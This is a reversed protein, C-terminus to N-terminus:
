SCLLSLFPPSISPYYSHSIHHVYDVYIKFVYYDHHTGAGNPGLLGFCEGQVVHFNSDRVAVTVGSKVGPNPYVKRLRHYEIAHVEEEDGVVGTELSRVQESDDEAEDSNDIATGENEFDTLLSRHQNVLRYEDAVDSDLSDLEEETPDKFPDPPPPLPMLHKFDLYYATYSYGCTKIISMLCMAWLPTFDESFLGLYQDTHDHAWKHPFTLLISSALFFGHPGLLAWFGMLIALLERIGLSEEDDDNLMSDFQATFLMILIPLVLLALSIAPLLAMAFATSSFAHSMCYTFALLECMFLIHLLFFLGNGSDAFVHLGFIPICIWTGLMPIALLAMDGLAHGVWYAAPDVGMIALLNRVKAEREAVLLEALLGPVFIYGGTIMVCVLINPLMAELENPSDGTRSFLFYLTKTEMRLYMASIAAGLPILVLLWTQVGRLLQPLKMVDSWTPYKDLKFGSQINVTTTEKDKESSNYIPPKVLGLLNWDLGLAAVALELRRFLIAKSQGYFSPVYRINEGVNRYFEDSPLLGGSAEVGEEEVGEEEEMGAEDIGQESIDVGDELTAVAQSMNSGSSRRRQNAQNASEIVTSENGVKLFVEEFPEMSIGFNVVGLEGEAQELRGLFPGFSARSALPLSFRLENPVPHNPKQTAGEIGKLVFSVITASMKDAMVSTDASTDTCVDRMMPNEYMDESQSSVGEQLLHPLSGSHRVLLEYGIDFQSKLESPTGVCALKGDKMIGVRDGLVEAEDMFHTSLM